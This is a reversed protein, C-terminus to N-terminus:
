TGGELRYGVGKELLHHIGVTCKSKSGDLNKMVFEQQLYAVIAVSYQLVLYIRNAALTESSM